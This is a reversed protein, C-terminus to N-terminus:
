AGGKIIIKAQEVLVADGAAAALLRRKWAHEEEDCKATWHKECLSVGLAEVVAVEHCELAQCYQSSM